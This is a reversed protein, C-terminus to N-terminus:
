PVLTNRGRLRLGSMWVTTGPEAYGLDLQFQAQLDGHENLPTMLLRQPTPGIQLVRIGVVRHPPKTEQVGIRIQAPRDATLVAQLQLRANASVQV